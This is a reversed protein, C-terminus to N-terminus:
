RDGGRALGLVGKLGLGILMGALVGALLVLLVLWGLPVQWQWDAALLDLTVNGANASVFALGAVFAGTVLLVILINRLLRM